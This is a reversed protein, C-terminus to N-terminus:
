PSAEEGLISISLPSSGILAERAKDTSFDADHPRICLFFHDVSARVFPPASFAPHSLRPLRNLVLLSVIGTLTAFLVTLEFIIPIFSPWSFYPRGGINHPYDIVCAWYQLAFGALGGAIGGFLVCRAVKTERFGIAEALAASPFPGFADLRTFGKKRVVQAAQAAAEPTEFEAMVGYISPSDASM